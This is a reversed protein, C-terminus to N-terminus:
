QVAVQLNRVLEANARDRSRDVERGAGQPDTSSITFNNEQSIHVALQGRERAERDADRPREYYRSVIEGAQRANTAARLLDGARREAGRTLEYTLFDLQEATTSSRIDKGAWKSFAEQRDPHWQALGYAKGGDGVARPNMASEDQLNALIGAAEHSKWGALRLYTMPDDIALAEKANDNGFFALTAAVAKGIKDQANVSLKDYIASGLIAGIGGAGGILGLQALLVSFSSVAKGAAGAIGLGLRGFAATLAVIGGIIEAGGFLKLVVLLGLLRTSWGGTAEDWEIFKGVLWAIWKGIKEAVDLVKLAIEAVRDAVAPGNTQLWTTLDHVSLGLRRSLAEYIQLGFAEVVTTLDRMEMMFEHADVTAKTWDTGEMNKRMRDIEEEFGASRMARLTDESIGLMGAYQNALHYPMNRFREGLDLILDTTDRLEGLEGRTRVGLGTLLGEVGPNERIARTLGQVSELAEGAQTGLNQMGRDFAKLNAASANTKISAFYLAELNSSMRTVGAAVALATAEIASALRVVSKTAKEIGGEFQDLAPKDTKFGLAVLFERIVSSDAV